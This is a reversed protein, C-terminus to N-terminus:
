LGLKYIRHNWYDICYLYSGDCALAGPTYCPSNYKEVVNGELDMKEIINWDYQDYSFSAWLNTGDSTLGGLNRSYFDFSSEINGNTPDIECMEDEFMLFSGTISWLSGSVYTLYSGGGEFPVSSEISCSNDLKYISDSGMCWLNSGDWTLGSAYISFSELITGNGEDLKHITAYGSDIESIWLNEGDFCMDRVTGVSADLLISSISSFDSRDEYRCYWRGSDGTAINSYIGKIETESDIDHTYVIAEFTLENDLDSFEIDTLVVTGIGGVGSSSYDKSAEGMVELNDIGMGSITITGSLEEYEVRLDFTFTGREDFNKESIWTGEWNLDVCNPDSGCSTLILVSVFIASLLKIKM